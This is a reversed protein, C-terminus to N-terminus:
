YGGMLRDEIKTSQTLILSAVVFVALGILINKKRKNRIVTYTYPVSASQIIAGIIKLILATTEFLKWKIM